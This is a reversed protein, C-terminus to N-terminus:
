IGRWHRLLFKQMTTWCCSQAIRGWWDLDKGPKPLVITHAERWTEPIVGKELAANCTLVLPDLLVPSFQLYCEAPYGDRATAKNRKMAKMVEQIELATFPRDLLCKHEESLSVNYKSEMLFNNISEVSPNSSSYLTSYFYVFEELIAKSPTM